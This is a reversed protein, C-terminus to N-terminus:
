RALSWLKQFTTSADFNSMGNLSAEYLSNGICKYFMIKENRGNEFSSVRTMSAYAVFIQPMCLYAVSIQPMFLYAVSTQSM